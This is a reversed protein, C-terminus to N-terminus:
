SALCVNKKRMSCASDSIALPQLDRILTPFQTRMYAPLLKPSMIQSRATGEPIAVIVASNVIPPRECLPMRRLRLSVPLSQADISLLALDLEGLPSSKIIEAPLDLDSIRVRPGAVHAATIIFDTGSTFAM